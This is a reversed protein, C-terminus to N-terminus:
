VRDVIPLNGRSVLSLIVKLVCKIGGVLFGRRYIALRMEHFSFNPSDKPKNSWSDGNIKGNVNSKGM